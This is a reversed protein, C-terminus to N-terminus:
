KKEEKYMRICSGGKGRGIGIQKPKKELDLMKDFDEFNKADMRFVVAWMYGGKYLDNDFTNRVIKYKYMSGSPTIEDMFYSEWEEAFKRAVANSKFMVYRKRSRPWKTSAVEADKRPSEAPQEQVKLGKGDDSLVLMQDKGFKDLYEALTQRKEETQEPISIYNEEKAEAATSVCGLAISLSFKDGVNHLNYSEVERSLIDKALSGNLNDIFEKFTM